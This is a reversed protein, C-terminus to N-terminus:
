NIWIESPSVILLLQRSTTIPLSSLSTLWTMTCGDLIWFSTSLNVAGLIKKYLLDIIQGRSGGQSRIGCINKRQISIHSFTWLMTLAPLKYFEMTLAHVTEFVNLTKDSHLKLLFDVQKTIQYHKWAAINKNFFRQRM